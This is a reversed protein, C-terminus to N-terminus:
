RWLSIEHTGCADFAQKGFGGMMVDDTASDFGTMEGLFGCAGCGFADRGTGSWQKVREPLAFAFEVSEVHFDVAGDGGDDGFDIGGLGAFEEGAHLEHDAELANTVQQEAKGVASLGGRAANIGVVSTVEGVHGGDEFFHEGVDAVGERGSVDAFGNVNETGVGLDIAKAIEDEKTVDLIRFVDGALGTQLDNEHRLGKLTGAIVGLIEGLFNAVEHATMGDAMNKLAVVLGDFLHEDIVEAAAFPMSFYRRRGAPKESPWSREHAFSM